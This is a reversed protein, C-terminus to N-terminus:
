ILSFGKGFDLRGCNANRAHFEFNIHLMMMMMLEDDYDQPIRLSVDIDFILGMTFKVTM